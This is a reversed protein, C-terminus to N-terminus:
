EGSGEPEEAIAGDEKTKLKKSLEVIICHMETIRSEHTSAMSDLQRHTREREQLTERLQQELLHRGNESRQLRQSLELVESRMTSLAATQLQVPTHNPTFKPAVTISQFDDKLIKRDMNNDEPVEGGSTRYITPCCLWSQSRGPPRHKTADWDGLSVRKEDDDDEEVSFDKYKENLTRIISEELSSAKALSLGGGGSCNSDVTQM